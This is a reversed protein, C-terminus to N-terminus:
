SVRRTIAVKRDATIQAKDGNRLVNSHSGKQAFSFLHWHVNARRKAIVPIPVRDIDNDGRFHSRGFVGGAGVKM